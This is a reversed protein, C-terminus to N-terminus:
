KMAQTVHFARPAEGSRVSWAGISLQPRIKPERQDPKLLALLSQDGAKNVGAGISRHERDVVGLFETVRDIVEGGHLDAL